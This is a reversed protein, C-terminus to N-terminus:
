PGGAGAARGVPSEVGPQDRQSRIGMGASAEPRHGYGFARPLLPSWGKVLRVGVGTARGRVGVGPPWGRRGRVGVGAPRGSRSGWDLRGKIADRGGCSSHGVRSPGAWVRPGVRVGVGPPQGKVVPVGLSRRQDTRVEVGQRGRGQM